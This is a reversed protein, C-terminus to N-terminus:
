DMSKSGRSMDTFGATKSSIKWRRSSSPCVKTAEGGAGRRTGLLAPITSPMTTIIRARAPFVARNATAHRARFNQTGRRIKTQRPTPITQSPTKRSSLPFLSRLQSRLPLPLPQLRRHWLQRLRCSRTLPMYETLELDSDIVRVSLPFSRSPRLNLHHPARCGLRVPLLRHKSTPKSKRSHGRSNRQLLDPPSLDLRTTRSSSVRNREEEM